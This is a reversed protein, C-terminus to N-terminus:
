PWGYSLRREAPSVLRYSPGSQRALGPKIVDLEHVRAPIKDAFDSAAEGSRERRGRHKARGVPYPDTDDASAIAPHLDQPLGGLACAGLDDSEAINVIFPELGRGLFEWGRRLKVIVPSHQFRLRQVCHQNCGRLMEMGFMEDGRHVGTFMDILFFGHREGHLMGLPHSGGVLTGAALQGDLDSM